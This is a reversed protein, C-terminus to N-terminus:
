LHVGGYKRGKWMQITASRANKFEQVQFTQLKQFAFDGTCLLAILTDKKKGFTKTSWKKTKRCKLNLEQTRTSKDSRALLTNKQPWHPKLSRHYPRREPIWLSLIHSVGPLTPNHSDQTQTNKGHNQM